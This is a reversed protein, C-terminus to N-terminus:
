LRKDAMVQFVICIGVERALVPKKNIMAKARKAPRYKALGKKTERVMAPRSAISNRGKAELNSRFPKPLPIDDAIHVNM